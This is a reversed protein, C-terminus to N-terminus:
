GAGLITIAVMPDFNQIINNCISQSDRFAWYDYLNNYEQTM